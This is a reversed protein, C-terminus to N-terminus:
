SPHAQRRDGPDGAASNRWLEAWGGGFRERVPGRTLGCALMVLGVLAAAVSGWAPRGLFWTAGIMWAGAAVNVWRLGRTVESIAVAAAAAVIPGVILDNVRAAGGYGLVGPAAMAGLGLLLSVLRPWM